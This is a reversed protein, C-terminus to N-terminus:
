KGTNTEEEASWKKIFKMNHAEHIDKLDSILYNKPKLFSGNRVEIKLCQIGGVLNAQANPKMPTLATQKYDKSLPHYNGNSSSKAEKSVSIKQKIKQFTEHDQNPNKSEVYESSSPDKGVVFKVMLENFKKISATYKILHNNSGPPKKSVRMRFSNKLNDGKIAANDCRCEEIDKM